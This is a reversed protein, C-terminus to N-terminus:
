PKKNKKDKPCRTKDWSCPDWPSFGAKDYLLKGARLNTVADLLPAQTCIKMQKCLLGVYSPHDPKWHVGNIQLLGSDSRHNWESVGVINCSKDVVDGGKRNPCGGSERLIIHGLEAHTHVPWGAETALEPLWSIDGHNFRITKGPSKPTEDIRIPMIYTAKAPIETILAHSGTTDESTPAAAANGIVLSLSLTFFLLASAISKTM